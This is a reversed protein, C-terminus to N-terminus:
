DEYQEEQYVLYMDENEQPGGIKIEGPIDKPKLEDFAESFNEFFPILVEELLEDRLPENRGLYLEMLEPPLSFYYAIQDFYSPDEEGAIKELFILAQGEDELTRKFEKKRRDKRIAKFIDDVDFKDEIFPILEEPTPVRGWIRRLEKKRAAIARERQEEIFQREREIRAKEEPSVDEWYGMVIQDEWGETVIKGPIDKPKILDFAQTITYYFDQFFDVLEEEAQYADEEKESAQMIEEVWPQIVEYPIGFFAAAEVAWDSGYTYAVTQMPMFAPEGSDEQSIVAERFDEDTRTERIYDWLKKLDFEWEIWPFFEEPPPIIWRGKRDQKWNAAVPPQEVVRTRKKKTPTKPSPPPALIEPEEEQRAPAAAAPPFMTFPDLARPDYPAIAGSPAPSLVDFPTLAAGHEQFPALGTEPVLIDFASPAQPAIIEFPSAPKGGPILSTPPALIEFLDPAAAPAAPLTSAPPLIIGGRAAPADPPALMSFADFAPQAPLRSEPIIMARPSSPPEEPVETPSIILGGSPAASPAESVLEPGAEPVYPPTIIPLPAAEPSPTEQPEEAVPRPLEFLRFAPTRREAEPIPGVTVKPKRRFINFREFFSRKPTEERREPGPPPAPRPPRRLVGFPSEPPAPRQRRLVEFPSSPPRAQQRRLVEFPSGETQGMLFEPSTRAAIDAVHEAGFEVPDGSQLVGAYHGPGLIDVVEVWAPESMGESLLMIEALDGHELNERMRLPPIMLDPSVLREEEVNGLVLRM